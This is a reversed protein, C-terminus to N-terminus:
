VQARFGLALVVIVELALMTTRPVRSILGALPLISCRMWNVPILSDLKTPPPM